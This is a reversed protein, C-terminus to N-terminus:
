PSRTRPAPPWRRGGRATPRSRGTCVTGAQERLRLWRHAREDYPVQVLLTDVASVTFSCTLLGNSIVMGLRNNADLSATLWTWVAPAAALAEVLEVRVQSDTLDYTIAAGYASVSLSAQNGLPRIEVRGNVERITEPGAASVNWRGTPNNTAHYLDITDDNFNDVLTHAKAM